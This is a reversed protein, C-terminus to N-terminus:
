IDSFMLSSIDEVFEKKDLKVKKQRVKRQVIESHTHLQNLATVEHDITFM